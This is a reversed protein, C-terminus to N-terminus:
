KTVGLVEEAATLKEDIKNMIFDVDDSLDEPWVVIPTDMLSKLFWYRKFLATAKQIRPEFEPLNPDCGCDTALWDTAM